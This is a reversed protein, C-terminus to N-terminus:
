AARAPRDGECTPANPERSLDALLEDIFKCVRESLGKLLQVLDSTKLIFATSTNDEYGMVLYPTKDGNTRELIAELEGASLDCFLVDKKVAVREQNAAQGLAVFIPVRYGKLLRHSPPGSPWLVADDDPDVKRFYSMAALAESESYGLLERAIPALRTDGFFMRSVRLCVIIADSPTVDGSQLNFKTEELCSSILASSKGIEHEM